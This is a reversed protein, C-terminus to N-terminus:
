LSRYMRGPSFIGHPDLAQKVRRHLALQPESLPHLRDADCDGRFCTAHGGHREAQERISGAPADSRVWRLGGAWDVLASGIDDLVPTAPPVSVRWLPLQPQASFFALRQERLEDWFSMTSEDGGLRQCAAAIGAATGSLRIYLQGDLHALGSLPLPEACWARFRRLATAQDVTQVLTLEQEPAPLVKLSVETIAGLTGLSGTLLRSVDYGAVNKMVEGGFRLHEGQGNIMRTGLVLDRAAGQWPRRPGSLGSAITGGLTAQDSFHPPEFPLMQRQEVLEAEIAQLLTGARATIVLETPQYNVIGRHEGIELPQANIAEGYFLKSDGGRPRLMKRQDIAEVVQACLAEAIDRDDSM